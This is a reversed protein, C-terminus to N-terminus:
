GAVLGALGDATIGYIMARRGNNHAHAMDAAKARALALTEASARAYQGRGLFLVVDFRIAATIRRANELDAPHPLKLM